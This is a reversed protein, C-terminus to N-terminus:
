DGTESKGPTAFAYRFGIGLLLQEEDYPMAGLSLVNPIAAPGVDKLMWDDSEFQQWTLGLELILQESWAYDMGVRLQSLQTEFDPFEDGGTVLSEMEIASASDSNRLDIRLDAKGAIGRVRVGAGVSTFTDEWDAAWDPAGFSESGRQLSEITDYGLNLWTSVTESVSWTLDAALELEEGSIMGLRSETYSDDAWQGDLTLAVPLEAPTISVTFEAFERYRYALEYKRLLPNQGLDVAVTEDYRDIDRKQTGGRVDLSLLDLPQWRAGLWGTDETQGAVERFDREIERREVGGELTLDPFLDYSARANLVTRDFSYPTNLESTGSAFADVIVRNWAVRDTTNDREDYRYSLRVRARPLPRFSATLAYNTVDVGGDLNGLPLPDAALTANTTYPLFASDQTIEGVALSAGITTNFLDFAYGGRLFVQQFRSEPAKALAPTEAGPFTTFPTEWALGLQDNSFDSLFWGLSVYTRRATYDLSAEVEDTAYDFPAPL